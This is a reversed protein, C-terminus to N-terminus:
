RVCQSEYSYGHRSRGCPRRLGRRNRRRRHRPLSQVLPDSFGRALEAPRVRLSSDRALMFYIPQRYGAEELLRYREQRSLHTRPAPQSAALSTPRTATYPLMRGGLTEYTIDLGAKRMPTVLQLPFVAALDRDQVMPALIPPLMAMRGLPIPRGTLNRADIVAQPAGCGVLLCLWLVASAGIRNILPRM